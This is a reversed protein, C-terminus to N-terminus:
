NHFLPNWSDTSPEYLIINGSLDVAYANSKGIGVIPVTYYWDGRLGLGAIWSVGGANEIYVPEDWIEDMGCTTAFPERSWCFGKGGYVVVCTTDGKGGSVAEANEIGYVTELLPRDFCYSMALDDDASKLMFLSWGSFRKVTGDEQVAHFYVSDASLDIVSGLGPVVTPTVQYETPGDEDQRFNLYWDPNPACVVRGDRLVACVVGDAVAIKKASSIGPIDRPVLWDHGLAMDGWCRVKGTSSLACYTGSNMALQDTDDLESIHVPLNALSLTTTRVGHYSSHDLSHGSYSWCLVRHDNNPDLNMASREQVCILDEGVQINYGNSVGPVIIAHDPDVRTKSDPFVEGWCRVEGDPLAACAVTDSQSVADYQRRPHVALAPSAFALLSVVLTFLSKTKM